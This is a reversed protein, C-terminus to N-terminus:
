NHCDWQFYYIRGFIAEAFEVTQLEDSNFFACFIFLFYRLFCPVPYLVHTQKMQGVGVLWDIKTSVDRIYFGVMCWGVLVM